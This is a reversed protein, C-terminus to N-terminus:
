PSSWRNVPTRPFTISATNAHAAAQFPMAPEAVGSQSAREVFQLILFAAFKM